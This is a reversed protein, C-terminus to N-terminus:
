QMVVTKLVFEKVLKNSRAMARDALEQRLAQLGVPGQLQKLTLTRLYVLIDDAILAGTADPSRLDGPDFVISAEVRIWVDAPEGLNTIVPPLDYVRLPTSAARAPEGAVGAEGPSDEAAARWFWVAFGAGTGASLASLILVLLAAGIASSGGRAVVKGDVTRDGAM